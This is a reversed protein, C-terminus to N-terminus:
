PPAGTWDPKPITRALLTGIATIGAIILFVVRYARDLHTALAARQDASLQDMYAPGGDIVKRVVVALDASAGGILAFLVSGVLAVGFAGGIARCISITATASGLAQRGAALQVMVQVPPMVMGIGVGSFVTLVMIVATSGGSMSMALGLYSLTALAMGLQPFITAHGTTTVLKGTVASAIVMSLTIPLLLLGSQGIGLGRGLQLYLPLYLITSFLAAGFCLVVLDSRAIAPVAIFHLPIV